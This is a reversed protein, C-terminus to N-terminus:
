GGGGWVCVCVCVLRQTCSLESGRELVMSFDTKYFITCTSVNFECELQVHGETQGNYDGDGAV